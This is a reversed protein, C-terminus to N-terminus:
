AADPESEPEADPEADPEPAEEAAPPPPEATMRRFQELFAQAIGAHRLFLISEDNGDPKSLGAETWNAAGHIAVPRSGNPDILAYKLHVLDTEGADLGAGNARVRAPLLVVRNTTKYNAPDAFFEVTGRSVSGRANGRDSEPIVGCVRVGRDAADVLARRLGPRNFRHMAFFIEEQAGQLLERIQAEANVVGATAPLPPGFRVWCEGWDEALRFTAGDHDRRKAAGSRGARIEALEAAYAAHLEPSRILLGVNWQRWNAAGTFNGSGVFVWKEGGGYDFLAIKHHMVPKAPSITLVLPHDPRKALGDLSLGWLFSNTVAIGSDAVFHISAGRGLAKDLAKLIPAAGGNRPSDGSFTFTALEATDGRRLRNIQGVLLDNVAYEGPFKAKMTQSPLSYALQWDTGVALQAAAPHAHALLFAAAALGARLLRFMRLLPAPPQATM